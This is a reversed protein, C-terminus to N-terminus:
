KGRGDRTLTGIYKFSGASHDTASRSLVTYQREDRGLPLQNLNTLGQCEAVVSIPMACPSLLRVHVSHPLQLNPPHTNSTVIVLGKAALHNASLHFLLAGRIYLLAEPTPDHSVVHRKVDGCDSAANLHDVKTFIEPPKYDELDLVLGHTYKFLAICREVVLTNTSEQLRRLIVLAIRFYVRGTSPETPIWDIHWESHGGNRDHLQWLLRRPMTAFGSPRTDEVLGHLAYRAAVANNDPFNERGRVAFKDEYHYRLKLLVDALGGMRSRSGLATASESENHQGKHDRHGFSSTCLAIRDHQLELVTKIALNQDSINWWLTVTAKEEAPTPPKPLESASCRAFSDFPLSHCQRLCFKDNKFNPLVKSHPTSVIILPELGAQEFEEAIFHVFTPDNLANEEILSNRHGHEEHESGPVAHDLLDLALSRAFKHLKIWVTRHGEGSLEALAIGSCPDGSPYAKANRHLKWQPHSQQPNM